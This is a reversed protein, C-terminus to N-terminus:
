FKVSFRAGGYRHADRAPQGIVDNAPGNIPGPGFLGSFFDEANTLYFEDTVNNMFLTLNAKGGFLDVGASLNLLTIAPQRAQPNNNAQFLASTRYALNGGIVIATSDNVSFRHDLDINFKFKPSDPMPKGSLDQVGGICGTAPTQDGYCSAGTFQIFKADIYAAAVALTTNGLRANFDAELGQTRAKGANDLTLPSLGGAVIPFIQVQYDNYTTQFAAVNMTARHDLLSTKLGIEFSNIKEAGTAKQTLTSIPINAPNDTPLAFDAATNFARPKYGRTFSAYAMSDQGFKQQFSLDGVVSNSSDSNTPLVCTPGETVVMPGTPGPVTISHCGQFAGAAPNFVQTKQFSIKDNNYRLGGTISRTDSLKGTVRGYVAYTKTDSNTTFSQPAGVFVRLNSSTVKNDSYFGGALFSIPQDVDSAVKFEQSFQKVDGTLEQANGWHPANGGTLVDFFFLSSLTVDQSYDQKERQQATISSFTLNGRRYNLALSVDTDKWTSFMDDNITATGVNGYGITVGPFAVSQRIGFFSPSGGPGNFESPIFPFVPSGPTLYQHTFTGGDSHFRSFRAMLTADFNEGGEFRLKGRVGSNTSDANKGTRVDEVLYQTHSGFAALSFGLSDTIPGSVSLNLRREDDDTISVSARGKFEKSPGNTVINIVGASATRGGLTAQPGKLVEIQAIDDLANAAFSDPPVPVGDIQIAVGSTLGVAGENANTSIGRIGLPVRGNYTGKLQVSPVLKNLDSIDSANARTLIETNVVSAAVPIDKLREPRKQATVVVEDLAVSDAANQAQAQLCTGAALATTVLIIHRM